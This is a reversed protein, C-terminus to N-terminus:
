LRQLDPIDIRSRSLRVLGEEQMQNLIRSINQRRQGLINGLTTMKIHVVKHGIPSLCRQQLFTKIRHLLASNGKEAQTQGHPVFLQEWLDQERKQLRTSLFGALNLRFILSDALMKQIEEKEIIIANVATVAKITHTYRQFRGFIGDAQLIIPAALTEEISYAGDDSRAQCLITGQTVILLRGCKDGRKVFVEGTKVKQFDIRTHTLINELETQSMGIFLPLSALLDWKM